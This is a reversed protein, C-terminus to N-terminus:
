VVSKRDLDVPGGGSLGLTEAQQQPVRIEGEPGVTLKARM